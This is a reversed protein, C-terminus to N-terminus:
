DVSSVYVSRQTRIQSSQRAMLCRNFHKMPYAFRHSLNNCNVFEADAPTVKMFYITSFLRSTKRTSIVPYSLMTFSHGCGWESEICPGLKAKVFFKWSFDDM